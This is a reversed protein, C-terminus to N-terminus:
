WDPLEPWDFSGDDRRTPRQPPISLTYEDTQQWDRFEELLSQGYGSDALKQHAMAVPLGEVRHGNPLLCVCFCDILGVIQPELMLNPPTPSHHYRVISLVEGWSMRYGSLARYGLEPHDEGQSHLLGVDQLRAGMAIGECVDDSLGLYLAFKEAMLAGLGCRFRVPAPLSDFLARARARDLLPADEGPPRYFSVTGDARGAPPLIELEGQRLASLLKDVLDDAEGLVRSTFCQGLNQFFMRALDPFLIELKGALMLYTRLSGRACEYLRQLFHEPSLPEPFERSFQAEFQQLVRVMTRGWVREPSGLRQELEAKEVAVQKALQEVSGDGLGSTLVAEALRDLLERDDM